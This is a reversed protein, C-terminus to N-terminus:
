INSRNEERRKELRYLRDADLEANGDKFEYGLRRYFPLGTISAPIEIRRARQGYEDRELTEVIRRGVGQGQCEPLVFITLLISEDERGFFPGIAGCGLIADNEEAVYFHTGGARELIYGPHMRAVLSEIEEPPYDAANSIRLTRAILASVPAADTNTFRRIHM